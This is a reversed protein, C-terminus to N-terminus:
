SDRVLVMRKSDLPAADAYLGGRLYRTLHYDGDGFQAEIVTMRKFYHGAAYEDSMGIGGHLQIAQQGIFRGSTVIQVKAASVARRRDGDRQPECLAMTAAYVMSRALELAIFTDAMRHQLAQFSGIKVGFQERTKLYALTLEHLVSMVGLAEACQAGVAYDLATEIPEGASGPAGLLADAGLSVGRLHVDAAHTGDITRYARLEVGPADRPVAFLSLGSEAGPTRASVLLLDAQAAGAVLTKTGDIVYGDGARRAATEIAAPDFRARREGLAPVILAEGAIARELLPAGGDGAAALLNGALVVAHLYPELVLGRGFGEMVIMAELASGGFGGYREPFAIGLWGLEAFTAWHRRSFGEPAAALAKRQEFSYESRVFREISAQIQLQESSLSFDM